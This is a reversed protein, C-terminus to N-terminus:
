VPEFIGRMNFTTIRVFSARNGNARVIWVRIRNRPEMGVKTVVVLEGPILYAYMGENPSNDQEVLAQYNARFLKGSIESASLYNPYKM